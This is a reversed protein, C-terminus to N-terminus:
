ESEINYSYALYLVRFFMIAYSQKKIAEIQM